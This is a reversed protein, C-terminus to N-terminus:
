LFTTLENLNKIEFSITESHKESDPNFFVQDIGFKKAGLIDNELDDGIMLSETKKANVSKLAVQFIEPKPKSSKAEESTTVREFYKELGCNKLKKYQVEVFGNTIIHMKYKTSLYDLVEITNPFLVTQMPSLEVYDDGIQEALKPDDIGFDKLTLLFRENRLEDKRIKRLKYLDWLRENHAKYTSVFIDFDPFIKDLKRKDFISRLTIISNKEFDWLTRDLDFFLHKYQKL